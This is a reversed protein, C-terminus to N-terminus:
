YKSGKRVTGAAINAVLGNSGKRYAEGINRAVFASGAKTQPHRRNAKLNM